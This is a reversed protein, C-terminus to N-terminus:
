LILFKKLPNRDILLLATHPTIPYFLEMDNPQTIRDFTSYTNIVPQDGVILCGNQAQLLVASFDHTIFRM